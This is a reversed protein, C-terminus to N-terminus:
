RLEYIKLSPDDYSVKCKSSIEKRAERLTLTRGFDVSGSRCLGEKELYYEAVSGKKRVKGLFSLNKLLIEPWFAFVTLVRIGRSFPNGTILSVRTTLPYAAAMITAIVILTTLLLPWHFWKTSLIVVILLLLWGLINKM